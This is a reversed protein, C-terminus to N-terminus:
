PAKAAAAPEEEDPPTAPTKHRLSLLGGVILTVLVGVVPFWPYALSVSNGAAKAFDVALFTGEAKNFKLGLIVFAMVVVTTLFAVIADLQRAKRFILGLLFAGLL